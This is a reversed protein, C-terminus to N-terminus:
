AGVVGKLSRLRNVSAHLRVASRDLDHECPMQSGPLRTAAAGWALAERLADPGVGGGAVFGALLADGAGVTSVPVDGPAEGHRSGTADVLLAGDPGLSVLVAKAGKKRLREAADLADGLTEVAQGAAEALEERNPKIVDPGEPLADMLAEGTTDIAIRPHLSVLRAMLHAYFGADVGPPLSGSAVVWSAGRAARVTAAMLAEVEGASLAPGPENLKTVTGDPEVVSVNARISGAIPVAEVALGHEALLQALQAGEAGGSPLVARVAHGNAALARAVNVGKGGAEVTAARARLVAGRVLADVVITRDLSPNPTLTVIM